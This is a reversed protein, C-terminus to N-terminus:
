VCQSLVPYEGEDDESTDGLDTPLDGGNALDAGPVQLTHQHHPAGPLLHKAASPKLTPVTFSPEDDMSTTTLSANDLPSM